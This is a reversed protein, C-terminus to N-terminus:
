AAIGYLSISGATFTGGFLSISTMVAENLWAGEVKGGYSASGDTGVGSVVKPAIELVNTISVFGDFGTSSNGGSSLVIKASELNASTSGVGLFISSYNHNTTDSNFRMSLVSAASFNVGKWTVMFAKYGALGSFTTSTGSTTTNTAILQWNQLSSTSVTNVAM